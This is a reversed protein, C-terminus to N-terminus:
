GVIGMMNRRGKEEKMMDRGGTGERGRRRM